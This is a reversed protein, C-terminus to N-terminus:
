RSRRHHTNSSFWVNFTVVYIRLSLSRRRLEEEFALENADNHHPGQTTTQQPPPPGHSTLDHFPIFLTPFLSMTPEVGASISPYRNSIPNGVMVAPFVQVKKWSRSVWFPAQLATDASLDRRTRVCGEPPGKVTNRHEQGGGGLTAAHDIVLRERYQHHRGSWIWGRPFLNVFELATNITPTQLSLPALSTSLTLLVHELPHWPVLPKHPSTKMSSLASRPSMSQSPAHTVPNNVTRV